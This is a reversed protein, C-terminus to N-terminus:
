KSMGPVAMGIRSLIVQAIAWKAAIKSNGLKNGDEDVIPIGDKLERYHM